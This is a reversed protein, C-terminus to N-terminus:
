ILKGFTTEPTGHVRYSDRSLWMGGLYIYEKKIPNFAFYIKYVMKEKNVVSKMPSIFNQVYLSRNELLEEARSESILGKYQSRNYINFSSRTKALPKLAFGKNWMDEPLSGLGVRKWLNMKEGYSNQNRKFICTVSRQRLYEYREDFYPNRLLLLEKRSDSLKGLEEEQIVDIWIHDDQFQPHFVAKIVPWTAQTKKLLAKLHDNINVAIGLNKPNQSISYINLSTQFTCNMSLLLSPVNFKNWVLVDEEPFGSVYQKISELAEEKAAKPLRLSHSSIKTKWNGVELINTEVEM